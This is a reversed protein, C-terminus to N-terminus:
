LAKSSKLFKNIDKDLEQMKLSEESHVEDEEQIIDNAKQKAPSQDKIRPPSKAISSVNPSYNVVKSLKQQEYKSDSNDVNRKFQAAAMQKEKIRNMREQEIRKIEQRMRLFEIM